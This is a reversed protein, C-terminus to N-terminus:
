RTAPKKRSGVIQRFHLGLPYFEVKKICNAHYTVINRGSRRGFLFGLAHDIGHNKCSSSSSGPFPYSSAHIFINPSMGWNSTTRFTRFRFNGARREKKRAEDANADIAYHVTMDMVMTRVIRSFFQVVGREQLFLNSVRFNRQSIRSRSRFCRFHSRGVAILQFDNNTPRDTPTLSIRAAKIQNPGFRDM